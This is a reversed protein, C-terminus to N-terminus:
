IEPHQVLEGVGTLMWAPFTQQFFFACRANAQVSTTTADPADIVCCPRFGSPATAPSDNRDEATIQATDAEAM